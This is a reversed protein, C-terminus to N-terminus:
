PENHNTVPERCRLIGCVSLRPMSSPSFFRNYQALLRSLFNITPFRHSQNKRPLLSRVLPCTVSTAQWLYVPHAFGDGDGSVEPILIELSEAREDGQACDQTKRSRFVFRKVQEPVAHDGDSMLARTPSPSTDHSISEELGPMM